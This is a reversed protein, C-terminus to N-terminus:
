DNKLKCKKVRWVGIQKPIESHYTRAYLKIATMNATSTFQFKTSEFEYVYYPNM